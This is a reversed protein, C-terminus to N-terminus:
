ITQSSGPTRESDTTPHIGRVSAEPKSSSSLPRSQPSHPTATFEPTSPYLGGTEAAGAINAPVSSPRQSLPLSPKNLPGGSPLTRTAPSPSPFAHRSHHRHSAWRPLRQLPPSSERSPGPPFSTSLLFLSAVGESGRSLRPCSNTRPSPRLQPVTRAKVAHSTPSAERAVPAPEHKLPLRLLFGQFRDLSLPLQCACSTFHPENRSPQGVHFSKSFRRVLSTSESGPPRVPDWTLPNAPDRRPGVSSSLFPSRQLPEVKRGAQNSQRHEDGRGKMPCPWNMPWAHALPMAWLNHDVYLMFDM